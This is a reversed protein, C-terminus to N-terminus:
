RRSVPTRPNGPTGTAGVSRRVDLPTSNLIEVRGHDWERANSQWRFWAYDHADVGGDGTFSPREPLVFVDPVHNRLWRSRRASSLFGLRLLAVVNPVCHVAHTVFPFAESFPPNMVIWDVGRFHAKKTSLFDWEGIGDALPYVDMESWRADPLWKKFNTRFAGAGACPDVIRWPGPHVINREGARDIVWAPTEYFDRDRRM